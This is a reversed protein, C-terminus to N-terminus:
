PNEAVEQTNFGFAVGSQEGATLSITREDTVVKGERVIEAEVKYKYTFGPRLGYSVFHRKSGTSKTLLGNITVKAENPVWVTLIGSDGATPELSAGDPKVDKLKIGGGDPQVPAAGPIGLAPLSSKEAPLLSPAAPKDLKPPVAAPSDPTPAVAAPKPVVPAPGDPVPAMPNTPAASAKAPAPAPEPAKAPAPMTSGEAPAVVPAGGCGCGSVVSSGWSGVSTGCCSSLCPDCCSWGCGYGWGWRCARHHHGCGYCGSYCGCSPVYASTVCCDWCGGYGAPPAGWWWGANAQAACLGLGLIAVGAVLMKKVGARSM